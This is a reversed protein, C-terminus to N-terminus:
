PWFDVCPSIAEHDTRQDRQRNDGMVRKRLGGLKGLRDMVYSLTMVSRQYFFRWQGNTRAGFLYCKLDSLPVFHNPDVKRGQTRVFTDVNQQAQQLEQNTAGYVGGHRIVNAEATGRGALEGWKTLIKQSNTNGIGNRVTTMQTELTIQRQANWNNPAPDPTEVNLHCVTPNATTGMIYFACGNMVATCFTAHMLGDNPGPLTMRTIRGSGWPLFYIPFQENPPVVGNLDTVQRHSGM